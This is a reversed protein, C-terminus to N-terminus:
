KASLKRLAHKLHEIAITGSSFGDLLEIKIWDADDTSRLIVAEVGEDDYLKIEVKM